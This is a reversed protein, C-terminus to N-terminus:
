ILHREAISVIRSVHRHIHEVTSLIPLGEVGGEEAFCIEFTFQPEDHTPGGRAAAMVRYLEGGDVLPFQQDDPRLALTPARVPEQLWPPQVLFTLVVSTHAAGVVLIVRHKDIIDLQHLQTLAKNGNAWPKLRRIFRLTEQSAGLLCRPATKEFDHKSASMPFATKRDPAGGNALVLQWCLQDLTARTNHIADGVVLALETPVGARVEVSYVLDGSDDESKIIRYPNSKSYADLIRRLEAIHQHARELKLNVGTLSAM